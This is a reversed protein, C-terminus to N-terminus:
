GGSGLGYLGAVRVPHAREIAAATGSSIVPQTGTPTTGGTPTLMAAVQPILEDARQWRDAPKKELCRLILENLVAPVTTRHKTVPEPAETVHAALMAQANMAAFPPRGSLM